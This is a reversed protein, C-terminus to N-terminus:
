WSSMYFFETRDNQKLAIELADITKNICEFYHERYERGGFFFGGETPLIDEASEPDAKVEKCVQLLEQLLKREVFYEACNDVGGQVNDVFWKHIANAKRWYMAEMEILKIRYPADVKKLAENLDNDEAIYDSVYRKATLYMDLGM